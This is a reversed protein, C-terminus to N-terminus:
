SKGRRLGTRRCYRSNGHNGAAFSAPDQIQHRIAEDDGHTNYRGKGGEATQDAVAYRDCYNGSINVSASNIVRSSSCAHLLLLPIVALLWRLFNTKMQLGYMTEVMVFFWRFLKIVGRM